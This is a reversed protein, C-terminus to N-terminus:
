FCSAFLPLKRKGKALKTGKHQNVLETIEEAMCISGLQLGSKLPHFLTMGNRHLPQLHLELFGQGFVGEKLLFELVLLALVALFLLLYLIEVLGGDIELIPLPAEILDEIV